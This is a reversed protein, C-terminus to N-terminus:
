DAGGFVSIKSSDQLLEVSSCSLFGAISDFVELNFWDPETNNAENIYTINDILKTAVEFM